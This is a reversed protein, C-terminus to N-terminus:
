LEWSDLGGGSRIKGEGKSGQLPERLEKDNERGTSKKNKSARSNLRAVRVSFDGENEGESKRSRHAKGSTEGGKGDEDIALEKGDDPLSGNVRKGGDDESLAGPEEFITTLTEQLSRYTDELTQSMKEKLSHHATGDGLFLQTGDRRDQSNMKELVPIADEPRVDDSFLYPEDIVGAEYEYSAQHTSESYIDIVTDSDEGRPGGREKEFAWKSQTSSHENEPSFEIETYPLDALEDGEKDKRRRRRKIFSFFLVLLGLIVIIVFVIVYFFIPEDKRYRNISETFSLEEIEVSTRETGVHGAADKVKLTVTYKGGREYTHTFNKKTTWGVTKGDGFDIMFLKTGCHDSSRSGGFGIEEGVKATRRSVSLLPKPPTRDIKIDLSNIKERNGAKDTSYYYLTHIGDSVDDLDLMESYVSKDSEDDFYYYIVDKSRSILEIEIDTYWDGKGNPESPNLEMDTEPPTVDIMMERFVTIGTNGAKDVAYAYLKVYGELPIDIDEEPDYEIFETNDWSYHITANEESALNIIPLTGSYYGNLGNPHQPNIEFTVEPLITDIKLELTKEEARNSAWDISYCHLISVHQGDDPEIPRDYRKPKEDDFYYFISDYMENSALRIEPIETYWGENGGPSKDVLIEVTPPTRDVQLMEENMKELNGAIDKSYYEIIIEGECNIDFESTYPIFGGLPEGDLLVRFYTEIDEENQILSVTPTSNYWGSSGTPREPDVVLETEPPATDIRVVLTKAVEKNEWVDESYYYIRHEGNPISIPGRYINYNEEENSYSYRITAWEESTLNLQPTTNYWGNQGDPEEPAIYYETVPPIKDIYYMSTEYPIFLPKTVTVEAAGEVSPNFFSSIGYANTRGKLYQGSGQICVLADEVPSGTSVDQVTVNIKQPSTTVTVQFTDPMTTWLPVEPEGLMNFELWCAQIQGNSQDTDGFWNGFSYAYHNKGDTHAKGIHLNGVGLQFCLDEQLGGAGYSYGDHGIVAIASRSSGIYAIAANQVNETFFEGICEAFNQYGCGSPNDFWNTLCALASVLPKKGGNSLSSVDNNNLVPTNGGNQMWSTPGGHDIFNIYGAGSNISTKLDNRSITGGNEYFKVPNEFTSTLYTDYLYDSQKAGDGVNHTDAGILISNKMWDGIPPSREYDVISQAWQNMTTYSNIAIRSLYVDAYIDTIDGNEGWNGDGDSNWTGGLCSYYNDAPIWGDDWGQAPDPDKCLRVPVDGYDGALLVYKIDYRNHMDKIFERIKEPNDSGAYSNYINQTTHIETPIGKKTKWTALTELSSVLGSSTIIIYQPKPESRTGAGRNQENGRETRDPPANFASDTYCAQETVPSSADFKIEVKASDYIIAKKQVPNFRISYLALSYVWYRMGGEWVDGLQAIRFDDAPIFADSLYVSRDIFEPDEGSYPSLAKHSPVINLNEYRAVNYSVKIEDLEHINRIEVLKVPLRPSGPFPLDIMDEMWVADWIGGGYEEKEIVPEPFDIELVESESFGYVADYEKTESIKTSSADIHVGALLPLVICLVAAFTLIPRLPFRMYLVKLRM